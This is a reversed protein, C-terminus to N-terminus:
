KETGTKRTNKLLNKKEKNRTAKFEKKHIKVIELLKEMTLVVKYVLSRLVINFEM